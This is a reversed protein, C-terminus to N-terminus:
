IQPSWPTTGNYFKSMKIDVESRIKHMKKTLEKHLYVIEDYVDVGQRQSECYQQLTSFSTLIDDTKFRELVDEIYIEHNAPNNSKVKSVTTRFIQQPCHGFM